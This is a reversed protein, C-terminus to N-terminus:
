KQILIFTATPAVEVVSIATCNKPVVFHRIMGAQIYEDFGGSSTTVGPGYKLCVDSGIAQCELLSAQTDLTITTASSISSTKTSALTGNDNPPLPFDVPIRLRNAM